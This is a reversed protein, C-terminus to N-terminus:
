ENNGRSSKKKMFPYVEAPERDWDGSGYEPCYKLESEKPWEGTEKHHLWQAFSLKKGSNHARYRCSDWKAQKSNAKSKKRRKIEDAPVSRMSGDAMRIRKVQKTGSKKGCNPCMGGICKQYPALAQRCHPCVWPRKTAWEHGCEECKYLGNAPGYYDKSGCEPCRV